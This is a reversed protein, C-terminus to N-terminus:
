KVKLVPQDPHAPNPVLRQGQCDVLLDTFELAMQGILVEDGLVLCPLDVTRGLLELTVPETVPVRSISGDAYQTGTAHPTALGLAAVVPAPLCCSTAGTDVMADATYTRVQDAPLLGRRVLGADITNTLRVQIRVEGVAAERETM